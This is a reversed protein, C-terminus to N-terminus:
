LSTMILAIADRVMPMEMTQVGTQEPFHEWKIVDEHYIYIMPIMLYVNYVHLTQGEIVHIMPGVSRQLGTVLPLFLIYRKYAYIM